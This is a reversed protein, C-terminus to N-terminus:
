PRQRGTETAAAGAAEAARRLEYLAVGAAVAVNLSSKLGHMPLHCVMDAGALAEESLGAVENGVLLACPFAVPAAALPRSGPTRELAVIARGEGRLREIAETAGAAESWPVVAEAGLATKAIEDRPPRGTYGCLWVRDVGAGDASRFMSGVNWLSRVNELLLSVPMTRREVNRSGAREATAQERLAIPVVTIVQGCAPCPLNKGLRDPAV